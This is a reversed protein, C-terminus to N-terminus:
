VEWAGMALTEFESGTTGPQNRAFGREWRLSIAANGTLRPHNAACPARVPFARAQGRGYVGSVAMAFVPSHRAALTQAM